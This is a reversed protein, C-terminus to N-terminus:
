TVPAGRLPAGPGPHAATPDGPVAAPPAILLRASRESGSRSPSGRRQHVSGTSHRLRKMTTIPLVTSFMASGFIESDSSAVPVSSCHIISAYARTNAPNNNVAPDIPSRKPRFPARFKPRTTNPAPEATAVNAVLAPATMAHRATIPTPAANTMGAVSDIRVWTKGGWSRAFAM